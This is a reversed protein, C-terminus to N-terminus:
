KLSRGWEAVLSDYDLGYVELAKNVADGTKEGSGINELMSRVAHLGFKDIIYKVISSSQLYALSSEKSSLDSFDGELSKISILKGEAVARSLEKMPRVVFRAGEYEAIGENLWTPVKKGKAMSRVVVHTYEHYLVAKLEPNIDKIGGIPLRIKGDYLGGSWDPSMTAEKFAKKAYLIVVTNGEPYHALDLNIDSYAEELIDLVIGGLAEDKEADYQVTFHYTDDKAFGEEAKAERQAKELLEKITKDEPYLGIGKKWATIASVMEGKDYFVKGMLTYFEPSALGSEAKELEYVADEYEKLRYHTYGKYFRTNPDDSYYLASKFDSVAEALKGDAMKKNGIFTYCTALNKGISEDTPSIGRAKLLYTLADDFDGHNM